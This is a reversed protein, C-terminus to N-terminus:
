RGIKQVHVWRALDVLVEELRQQVSAALDAHAETCDDGTGLRPAFETFDIRETVFGGDGTARILESLEGVFRPKGYSAMAMVKFEDSSRLFGLHSRFLTTYPFLTSRPPRRIM